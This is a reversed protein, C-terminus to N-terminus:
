IKFMKLFDEESLIPINLSKAKSNKSSNSNVDNNILYSTKASISGAVKGGLDEIKKQLESRNKFHSLSGTIVFTLGELSTGSSEKVEPEKITLEDLLEFFMEYNENWWSDLSEVLTTGIGNISAFELITNSTIFIFEDASGHCYKSIDKSAVSGLLPISLSYLM